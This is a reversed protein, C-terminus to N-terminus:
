LKLYLADPSFKSSHVAVEVVAVFHFFAPGWLGTMDFEAHTELSNKLLL